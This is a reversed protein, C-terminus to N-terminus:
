RGYQKGWQAYQLWEHGQSVQFTNGVIPLPKPGQPLNWPRRKSVIWAVIFLVTLGIIPASLPM